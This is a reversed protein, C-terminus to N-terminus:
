KEFAEQGEPNGKANNGPDRVPLHKRALKLGDAPQFHGIDVQGQGHQDPQHDDQHEQLDVEGRHALDRAVPATHAAVSAGSIEL